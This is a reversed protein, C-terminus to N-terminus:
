PAGSEVPTAYRLRVTGAFAPLDVKDLEAVSLRLGSPEVRGRIFAVFAVSARLRDYLDSPGIATLTYPPSLYASNALISGGIDLVASSGVIREGNVAIGEAGALWLDEILTRVDRATVLADVGGGQTGDELRFALGRGTVAILGAALRADELEKYLRRLSEAAGPDQAELGGIRTRLSVIDAKLAEQQSQLRLATEILPSREESSYRNRPGEASIQAAILFGLVLLAIALTVQVSPLGRLRGLITTM